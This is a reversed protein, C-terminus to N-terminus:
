RGMVKYVQTKTTERQENSEIYENRWNKNILTEDFRRKKGPPMKQWLMVNPAEPRKKLVSESIDSRGVNWKSNIM